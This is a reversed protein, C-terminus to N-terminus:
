ARVYYTKYFEMFPHITLNEYGVALRHRSIGYPHAILRGSLFQEILTGVPSTETNMRREELIVDREKYFERPVTNALRDAELMMWLELRNAPLNVFYQTEDRSTSANLGVAGNKKWLKAIPKLCWM